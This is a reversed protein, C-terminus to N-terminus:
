SFFRLVGFMEAVKKAIIVVIEGAFLRPYPAAPAPLVIIPIFIFGLYGQMLYM